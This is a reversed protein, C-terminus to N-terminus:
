FLSPGSAIYQELRGFPGTTLLHAYGSLRLGTGFAFRVAGHNTGPVALFIEGGNNEIAERFALALIPEADRPDSWSVPGVGAKTIYYYGVIDDGRQVAKGSVDGKGLWYAHDAERSTGRVTKDLAMAVHRELTRADYGSPEPPVNLPTGRFGLIQYGPLMGRKMYSAMATLDISSWTFFTGAGAKVGYEWVQDLLPGGIRQRQLEPLTWFASLYWLGDRVIASSISVIRGDKEAVRFTGTRMLHGYAEEIDPKPPIPNSVGHRAYMDKLATLLVDAITPLDEIRGTRYLVDNM